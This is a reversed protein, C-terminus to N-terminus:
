GNSERLEKTALWAEVYGKIYCFENATVLENAKRAKEKAESVVSRPVKPKGATSRFPGSLTVQSSV